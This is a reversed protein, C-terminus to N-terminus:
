TLNEKTDSENRWREQSSIQQSIYSRFGNNEGKPHYLHFLCTNVRYIRNGYKILRYYRDFDDDGWGYHKENEGGASIYKQTNLIVAGGVLLHNYLWNMKNKHRFLLRIDRRKLYLGRIFEPVNFCIGNYPIAVDVAGSRLQIVAEIIAKKDVVIDVDWLAVYSTTVERLMKNLYKTRYFVPDKDEIFEYRIQKRLLHSLVNNNYSAVELVYISTTFHTRLVHLITLLNELRYISDIRIQILFTVDLLNIKM